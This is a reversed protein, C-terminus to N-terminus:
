RWRTSKVHKGHDDAINVSVGREFRYTRLLKWAQLGLYMEQKINAARVRVPRLHLLARPLRLRPISMWYRPNMSFQWQRDSILDSGRIRALLLRASARLDLRLEFQRRLRISGRRHRSVRHGAM